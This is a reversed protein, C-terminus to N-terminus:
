AVGSQAKGIIGDLTPGDLIDKYDARLVDAIRGKIHNELDKVIQLQEPTLETEKTGFWTQVEETQNDLEKNLINYAKTYAENAIEKADMEPKTIIPDADLLILSTIFRAVRGNICHTTYADGMILQVVQAFQPDLNNIDMKYACDVINDILAIQLQDRHQTNDEDNIRDWVNNLIFDERYVQEDSMGIPYGGSVKDLVIGIKHLNIDTERRKEVIADPDTLGLLQSNYYAISKRKIEHTTNIMKSMTFQDPTMSVEQARQDLSGYRKTNYEIMKMLKNTMEKRILPDHVNQSDDGHQQINEFFEEPNNAVPAQENQLRLLETNLQNIENDIEQVIIAVNNIPRRMQRRMHREMRRGLTRVFQRLPVQITEQIPQEIPEVIIEQVPEVYTEQVPEKLPEKIPEVYAEKLPEQMIPTEASYKNYYFYILVLLTILLIAISIQLFM